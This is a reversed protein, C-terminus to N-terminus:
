AGDDAMAEGYLRAASWAAQRTAELRRRVEYAAAVAGGGIAAITWFAAAARYEGESLAWWSYAAGLTATGIVYGQERTLRKDPRPHWLLVHETILTAGAVLGATLIPRVEYSVSRATSAISM